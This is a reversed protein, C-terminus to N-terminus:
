RKILEIVENVIDQFANKRTSCYSKYEKNNYEIIVYYDQYGLRDGDILREQNEHNSEELINLLDTIKKFEEVSLLRSGKEKFFYRWWPEYHISLLKGDKQLVYRVQEWTGDGIIIVNAIINSKNYNILFVSISLAIIVM